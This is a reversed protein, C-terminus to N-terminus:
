AVSSLGAPAPCTQSSSAGSPANGQYALRSRSPAAFLDRGREIATGEIWGSRASREGCICLKQPIRSRSPPATNIRAHISAVILTFGLAAQIQGCFSRIGRRGFAPSPKGVLIAYQGLFKRQGFGSARRHEAHWHLLLRRLLGLGFCPWPSGYEPRVRRSFRGGTKQVGRSLRCGRVVSRVRRSISGPDGKPRGSSRRPSAAGSESVSGFSERTVDRQRPCGTRM